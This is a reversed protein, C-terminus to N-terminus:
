NKKKKIVLQCIWGGCEEFGVEEDDKNLGQHDKEGPSNLKENSREAM